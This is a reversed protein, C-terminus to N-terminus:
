EYDFFVTEKDTQMWIDWRYENSGTKRAVLTLRREPNVQNLLASQALAPDDELFVASFQHKLIGRAFLTIYAIPEGAVKATPSFQFRFEGNEGAAVRRFGPIALGAEAQASAPAWAELVADNIPQGDGDFVQGSVSVLPGAPVQATADFGWRWGEHPFPGITQSTTIKHTM